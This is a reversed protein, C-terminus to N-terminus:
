APGLQATVAALLIQEIGDPADPGPKGRFHGIWNYLTMSGGGLEPHDVNWGAEYAEYEGEPLGFLLEDTPLYASVENAYGAVWLRASGGYADRLAVAYGCVLEGGTLALRLDPEGPLSWVQIPVPVADAVAGHDLEALMVEAHRRYYADKSFDELRATYAERWGKWEDTGQPTDLPLEVETYSTGIPGSLPRGPEAVARVVTLGLQVGYRHAHDWEGLEAPNQDGAPGLLFQAFAGTRAEVTAVAHGPYDADFEGQRGAAVPHCGYGFLVVVPRGADDRAVLVPVDHEV